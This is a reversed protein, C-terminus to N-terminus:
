WGNGGMGGVTGNHVTVQNNASAVGNGGSGAGGVIAFGNLDITVNDVTM